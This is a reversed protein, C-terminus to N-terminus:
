ELGTIALGLIKYRILALIEQTTACNGSNERHGYRLPPLGVGM